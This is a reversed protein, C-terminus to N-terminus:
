LSDSEDAITRYLLSDDAFLSIKAGPSLGKHINKHLYSLHSSGLCYGSPCGSFVPCPDSLARVVLIAPHM